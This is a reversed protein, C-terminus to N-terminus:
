PNLFTELFMRAINVTPGEAPHHFYWLGPASNIELIHPKGNQDILFDIAAFSLHMVDTAELALDILAHSWQEKPFSIRKLTDLNNIPGEYLKQHVAVVKKDLVLYRYEKGKIYKEFIYDIYNLQPIDDTSRILYINRSHSGLKPKAIIAIQDRLFAQVDERTAALTYPINPLNHDQLIRRTAHKDFVSRSSLHSNIPSYSYYVYRKKNKVTISFLGYETLWTPELHLLKAEKFLLEATQKYDM